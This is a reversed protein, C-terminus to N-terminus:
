EHSETEPFRLLLLNLYEILKSQARRATVETWDGKRNLAYETIEIDRRGIQAYADTAGKRVGLREYIEFRTFDIEINALLRGRYNM